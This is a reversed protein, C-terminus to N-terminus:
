SYGRANDLARCNRGDHGCTSLRQSGFPVMSPAEFGLRGQGVGVERARLLSVCPVCLLAGLVVTSVMEELVLLATDSVGDLSMEQCPRFNDM